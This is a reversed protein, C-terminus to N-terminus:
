SIVSWKLVDSILPMIFYPAEILLLALESKLTQVDEFTCKGVLLGPHRICLSKPIVTVDFHHSSNSHRTYLGLLNIKVYKIGPV